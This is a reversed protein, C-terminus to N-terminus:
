PQEGHAATSLPTHAHRTVSPTRPSLAPPTRGSGPACPSAAHPPPPAAAARTPRRCQCGASRQPGACGGGRRGRRHAGRCEGPAKCEPICRSELRSINQISFDIGEAPCRTSYLSTCRNHDGILPGNLLTALPRRLCGGPPRVTLLTIRSPAQPSVGYCMPPPPSRTASVTNISRSIKRHGSTAEALKEPAWSTPMRLLSSFPVCIHHLLLIELTRHSTHAPAPTAGPMTACTPSRTLCPHWSHWLAIRASPMLTSASMLRSTACIAWMEQWMSRALHSRMRSTHGAQRGRM